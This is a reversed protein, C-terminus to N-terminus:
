KSAVPGQPAGNQDSCVMNAEVESCMKKENEYFKCYDDAFADLGMDMAKGLHENMIFATHIRRRADGLEEPLPGGEKSGVRLQHRALAVEARHSFVHNAMTAAWCRRKFLVEDLHKRLEDRKEIRAQLEKRGSKHRLTLDILQQEEEETM